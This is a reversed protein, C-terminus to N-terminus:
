SNRYRTGAYFVNEKTISVPTETEEETETNDTERNDDTQTEEVTQLPEVIDYVNEYDRLIEILDNTHELLYKITEDGHYTEMAYLQKLQKQYNEVMDVLDRLNQSIFLFKTLLKRLYWVMILFGIILLLIAICLWIELGTM